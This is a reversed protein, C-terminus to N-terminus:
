QFGPWSAITLDFGINLLGLAASILLTRGASVDMARLILAAVLATLLYTAASSIASLLPTTTPHLLFGAIGSAIALLAHVLV